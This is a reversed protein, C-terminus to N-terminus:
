HRIPWNGRPPIEGIPYDPWGLGWLSHFNSVAGAKEAFKLGNLIQDWDDTCNGRQAGLGEVDDFCTMESIVTAGRRAQVLNWYDEETPDPNRWMHYSLFTAKRRSYFYRRRDPNINADSGVNLVGEDKCLEMLNGVESEDRRYISNPHRAENVVEVAVNSFGSSLECVTQIWKRNDGFNSGPGEKLTCIGVVLVQAQPITDVVTLFNKLEEIAPSSDDYPYATVGTPLWVPNGPWYEVEACVRATPRLGTWEGSITSFLERIEFDSARAGSFLTFTRSMHFDFVTGQSDYTPTAPSTEDEFGGTFSGQDPVPDPSFTAHDCALILFLIAAGARGSRATPSSWRAPAQRLPHLTRKTTKIQTTNLM